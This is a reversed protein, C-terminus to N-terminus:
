TTLPLEAALFAAFHEAAAQHDGTRELFVGFVRARLIVGKELRTAFLEHSLRARCEKSGGRVELRSCEADAPHVLEAYSLDPDALRFLFGSCGAGHDVTTTQDALTVDTMTEWQTGALRFAGAVPLESSSFVTPCSDLLSTQVSILSEVAAISTRTALPAARWYIQSRMASQPREAYTIALDRGRLFYDIQTAAASPDVAALSVELVSADALPKGDICLAHLGHAPARPDVIGTLRGNQLRIREADSHWFQLSM